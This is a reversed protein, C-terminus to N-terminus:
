TPALIESYVAQEVGLVAELVQGDYFPLVQTLFAAALGSTRDIWYYCNCLGSWDGSGARRMGPLDETFVHLELAFTHSFPLAPVDNSLEPMASLTGEPM